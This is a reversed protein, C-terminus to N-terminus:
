TETGHLKRIEPGATYFNVYPGRPSKEKFKEIYGEELLRFVLSYVDCSRRSGAFKIGIDTTSLIEDPHVAFFALVKFATYNSRDKRRGSAHRLAQSGSRLKTPSQIM